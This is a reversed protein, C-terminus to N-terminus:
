CSCWPSREGLGFIVTFYGTTTGSITQTAEFKLLLRQSSVVSGCHFRVRESSHFTKDRIPPAVNVFFPIEECKTSLNIELDQLPLGPATGSTAGNYTQVTAALYLESIEFSDFDTANLLSITCNNSRRYTLVTRNEDRELMICLYDQEHTCGTWLLLLNSNETSPVKRVFMHIRMGRSTMQPPECHTYAYSPVLAESSNDRHVFVSKINRYGWLKQSSAYPGERPFMDPFLALVGASCQQPGASDNDTWLLLSYDETHRLIEEQLRLFARRGEGYLLPMSIGFIGLLCYAEDEQRTTERRSAWSMKQAVTYSGLNLESLFVDSSIGTTDEVQRRLSWKTGIDTWDASYFEVKAPAILEQLCWGRKFWRARKFENEPFIPNLPPVDELLAYCVASDRYWAFMSNIAESLEASSTKDICCTDVWVWELGNQKAQECCNLVKFFWAKNQEDSRQMDQFTVEEKGWTHSLIADPPINQDFFEEMQLSKSNILRV